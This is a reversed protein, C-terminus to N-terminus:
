SEKVQFLIAPNCFDVEKELAEAMGVVADKFKEGTNSNHKVIDDLTVTGVWKVAAKSSTSFARTTPSSM